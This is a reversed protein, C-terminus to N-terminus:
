EEIVGRQILTQLEFYEFWLKGREKPTPRPIKMGKQELSATKFTETLMMNNLMEKNQKGQDIIFGIM